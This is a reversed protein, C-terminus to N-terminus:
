CESEGELISEYLDIVDELAKQTDNFNIIKSYKYKEVSHMYLPDYYELLYRKVLEKYEGSELLDIYDDVVKNGLRKRFKNICEKLILINGEDKDYIYDRCLRDVRNEIDCELLIHHGERTMAEFIENPVTVSGVRKSESEVFIYNEKSFFISEFLKTEFNKQSPPKKDFTIFGFTSGSNKAIGELDLVDIGKEDLLHLLDTKGTGTLGHVSVFNKTDMVHRLYELVFNRYAKYGGELQYVNVGLSSLLNVISGSRMGGRACYIVINDYNLALEAAQLYIDKLKYSVYDFGKQIAEHKGQMKYITGVDNHENNKFLPMNIANLIHDEEYEGETRVDVFIVKDLKLAKEIKIVSM